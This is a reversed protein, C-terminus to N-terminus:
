DAGGKALWAAAALAVTDRGHALDSPTCRVLVAPEIGQREIPRDLFGTYAKVPVVVRFLGNTLSYIEKRCSAGATTAGFLKARKQAVFWSTWGEGASICREDILIAIPGSYKPRRTKEAKSPSRDFNVFATSTDFGGGTNGRVDIILGKIDGFDILAQDLSGELGAQIRRVYIYGIGGDLKTWSINANENIGARPVPLKPASRPLRDAVLEFTRERGDVDATKLSFKAGRTAQCLFGRAADYNLTRESSYGYYRRTQEMWTRMTEAASAGNVSIITMGLTIGRKEASSGRDISYVVPLGREDILCGIGAGWGRLDPQPPSASGATVVAHSDEMRAVLELVLLGFEHVTKVKTARPALEKGVKAWDIGKARFGPYVQGIHEHLAELAPAFTKALEPTEEPKPQQGGEYHALSAVIERAAAARAADDGHEIEDLTKKATEDGNLGWAVRDVCLRDVLACDILGRVVEESKDRVTSLGFYVADRRVEIDPDRALRLLLDIAEPKQPDARWVWFEGAVKALELRFETDKLDGCAVLVQLFSDDMILDLRESVILGLAAKREAITGSQLTKKIEPLRHGFADQARQRLQNTAWTFADLQGSLVKRMEVARQRVAKETSQDYPTLYDLLESRQKGSGWVIRSIPNADDIHMCIAVFTRLIAPTKDNVVSLGNHIAHFLCDNPNPGGARYDAAHYVIEIADPHQPSKGLIYTNGVLTLMTARNTTATRFGQRVIRLKETGSRPDKDFNPLLQDLVQGAAPDNPFFQEFNPPEYIGTRQWARTPAPPKPAPSKAAAQPRPSDASKAGPSQPRSLTRGIALGALAAAVAALAFAAVGLKALTLSGLTNTALTAADPGALEAAAAPGVRAFAVAARATSAALAPRLCSKGTGALALHFVATAPDIGRRELGAGLRRRGRSLRSKITGVPCGVHRAAEECSHGELECLVLPIRYQAPLRNIEDHILRAIDDDHVDADVAALKRQEAARQESTQRRATARRARVSTRCAVRHLWPAISDRVWLSGGHRALILFTAQFADEADHSNRLIGVCTRLVMAGHRDVLTAFAAESSEGRGSAFRELLQGDTFGVM